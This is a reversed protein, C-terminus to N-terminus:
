GPGPDSEYSILEIGNGSPDRCYISLGWGGAGFRRIPGEIVDVGLAGLRELTVEATENVRFALDASGVDNLPEPCCPSTKGPWPGHVNIQQSGLRYAVSALPNAAGEPNAVVEVALVHQYFETCSDWDDVHIIVHDLEAM